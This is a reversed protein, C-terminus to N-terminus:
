TWSGYKSRHLNTYICKCFTAKTNDHVAKHVKYTYGPLRLAAPARAPGTAYSHPGSTPPRGGGGGGNVGDAGGNAGLKVKSQACYIHHSFFLQRERAGGGRCIDPDGKPGGLFLSETVCSPRVM